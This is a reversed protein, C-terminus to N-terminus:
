NVIEQKFDFQRTDEKIAKEADILSQQFAEDSLRPKLLFSADDVEFKRCRYEAGPGFPYCIYGPQINQWKNPDYSARQDFMAFRENYVTLVKQIVEGAKEESSCIAVAAYSAGNDNTVDLLYM